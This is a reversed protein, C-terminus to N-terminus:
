PLLWRRDFAMAGLVLPLYILSAFLLARARDRSPQHAFAVSVAVFGLGTLVATGLYLWGTMELPTPLLAVLALAVTHMVTQRATVETGAEVVPLVKLGAAAYEDRYLQAIALSHPLQWLFLMTFLVGAEVGVTGSAAAWGTVPPLAGPIAGVITCLPSRRKLPTYLGLYTVITLATIAAPLSGVTLALWLVGIVSLAVGYVTAEILSLRGEPLPRQSTRVMLADTDRELVQNLALSGTAALATGLITPWLLALDSSEHAGLYFGVATTVLVLFMLRPKGLEIYDLVRRALRAASIPEARSSPTLDM